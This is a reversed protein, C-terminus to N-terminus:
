GGIKPLEPFDIMNSKKETVFISAKINKKNNIKSSTPCHGNQLVAVGIM